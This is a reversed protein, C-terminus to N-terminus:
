YQTVKKKDQSTSKISGSHTAKKIGSNPPTAVVAPAPSNKNAIATPNSQEYQNMFATLKQKSIVGPVFMVIEGNPAYLYSTPYYDVPGVQM